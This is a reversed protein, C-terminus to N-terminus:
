DSARPDLLEGSPWWLSPGHPASDDGDRVPDLGDSKCWAWRGATQAAYGSVVMMGRITEGDARVLDISSATGGPERSEFAKWKHRFLLGELFSKAHGALAAEAWCNAWPGLEPADMGRVHFAVGNKVVTDGDLVKDILPPAPVEFTANRPPTDSPTYNYGLWAAASHTLALLAITLAKRM